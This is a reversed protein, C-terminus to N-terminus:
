DKEIIIKFGSSEFITAEIVNTSVDMKSYVADHVEIGDTLISLMAKRILREYYTWIFFYVSSKGRALAQSDETNTSFWDIDEPLQKKSQSKAQELLQPTHEATHVLVQLRLDNSESQFQKYTLHKDIGSVAGNAFATLKQKVEVVPVKLAKAIDERLSRKFQKDKSYRTLLPYDSISAQILQLSITQLAASIDYNIFDLQKREASRLRTFVNYNRGLTPDTKSTHNLSVIFHGNEIAITKSVIHLMSSLCLNQVQGFSLFLLKEHWQYKTIIYNINLTVSVRYCTSSYTAYNSIGEMLTYNSIFEPQKNATKDFFIIIADALIQDTLETTRWLKATHGAYYGGSRIFLTDIWAIKNQNSLNKVARSNSQIPTGTKHKRSKIAVILKIIDQGSSKIASIKRLHGLLGYRYKLLYGVIAGLARKANTADKLYYNISRADFWELDAETPTPATQYYAEIKNVNYNICKRSVGAVEAFETVSYAQELHKICRLYKQVNENLPKVQTSVPKKHQPINCNMM